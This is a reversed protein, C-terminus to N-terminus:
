GNAGRTDRIADRAALRPRRVTESQPPNDIVVRVNQRVTRNERGENTAGLNVMRTPRRIAVNFHHGRSDAGEDGRLRLRLRLRLSRLSVRSDAGARWQQRVRSVGQVLCGQRRLNPEPPPLGQRCKP